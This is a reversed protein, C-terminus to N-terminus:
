ESLRERLQEGLLVATEMLSAGGSLRQAVAAVELEHLKRVFLDSLSHAAADVDDDDDGTCRNAASGSLPRGGTAAAIVRGNDADATAATGKIRVGVITPSTASRCVSEGGPKRQASTVASAALGAGAAAGEGSAVCGSNAGLVSSKPPQYDSHFYDSLPQWIITKAALTTAVADVPNSAVTNNSNNGDCNVAPPHAIANASMTM